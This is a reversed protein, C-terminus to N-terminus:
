VKVGRHKDDRIADFLKDLAHWGGSNFQTERMTALIMKGILSKERFAASDRHIREMAAAHDAKRQSDGAIYKKADIQARQISPSSTTFDAGPTTTM